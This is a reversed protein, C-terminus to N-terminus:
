QLSNYRRRPLLSPLSHLLRTYRKKPFMCDYSTRAVVYMPHSSLSIINLSSALPTNIPTRLQLEMWHGRRGSERLRTM